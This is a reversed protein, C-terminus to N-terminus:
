SAIGLDFLVAINLLLLALMILVLGIMAVTSGYERIQEAVTSRLTAASVPRRAMPTAAAAREGGTERLTTDLAAVAVPARARDKAPGNSVALKPSTTDAHLDVTHESTPRSGDILQTGLPPRVTKKRKATAGAGSLKEKQAADDATEREATALAAQKGLKAKLAEVEEHTTSVGKPAAAQKGLKEKLTQIEDHSASEADAPRMALKQKLRRREDDPVSENKAPPRTVDLKAKLSEVKDNATGPNKASAFYMDLRERLREIKDQGSSETKKPATGVDLKERLADVESTISAVTMAAERKARRRPRSPGRVMPEANSERREPPHTQAESAEEVPLPELLDFFSQALRRRRGWAWFELKGRAAYALVGTTLMLVLAMTLVIAATPATTGSEDTREGLTGRTIPV